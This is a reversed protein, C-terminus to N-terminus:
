RYPWGSQGNMGVGDNPQMINSVKIAIQNM